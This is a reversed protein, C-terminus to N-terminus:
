ALRRAALESLAQDLHAQTWNESVAKHLLHQQSPPALGGLPPDKDLNTPFPYGDATAAIVAELAKPDLGSLHPFVARSM